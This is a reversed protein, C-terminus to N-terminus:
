VHGGRLRRVMVTTVAPLWGLALLYVVYTLPRGPVLPGDDVVLGLSMVAHVVATVLSSWGLWRPLARHRLGIVGTAAYLVAAPMYAVVTMSYSLRGLTATVAPDMTPGAMMALTLQISQMVFQLVSGVVGAVFAVHAMPARGPEYDALFSRLAGYFWLAVASSAVFSLSQWRLEARWTTVFDMMDAVPASLPPAGREMAAGGIGLVLVLYGSAAIWRLSARDNM